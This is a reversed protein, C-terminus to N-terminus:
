SGGTRKLKFYYTSSAMLASHDCCRDVLELDVMDVDSMVVRECMNREALAYAVQVWHDDDVIAFGLNVAVPKEIEVLDVSEGRLPYRITKLAVDSM